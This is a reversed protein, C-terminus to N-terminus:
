AEEIKETAEHSAISVKMVDFHTTARKWAQVWPKNCEDMLQLEEPDFLVKGRKPSYKRGM